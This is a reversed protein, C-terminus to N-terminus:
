WKRKTSTESECWLLLQLSHADLWSQCTEHGERRKKRKKKKKERGKEQQQEARCFMILFHAM